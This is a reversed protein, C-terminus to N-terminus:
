KAQLTEIVGEAFWNMTQVDLLSLTGHKECHLKGEQDYLPGDFPHVSGDIVLQRFIRM